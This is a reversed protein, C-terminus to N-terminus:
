FRINIQGYVITSQSDHTCKLVFKEPLEDIDIEEVSNYVGYLPVFNTSM